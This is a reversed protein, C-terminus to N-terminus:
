QSVAHSGDWRGELQYVTPIVMKIPALAPPISEAHGVFLYGGPRLYGLLRGLVEQRTRPDFYILVNRCFILDFKYTFPYAADKLNLRSFDIMSRIEPRAKIHGAHKRVGRLLFKQSYVRPIESASEAPWVGQSATELVRNSLDTAKINIDWGPSFSLSHHLLMALSYPEQGSSCGASWVRLRRTRQFGDNSCWRPLVCQQLFDFHKPERFFHTENTSVLDLMYNREDVSESVIQHYQRFSRLGLARLRGALRGVLLATKGGALWIGCEKWILKQFLLFEAPSISLSERHVLSVGEGRHVSMEDRSRMRRLPHKPQAGASSCTLATKM